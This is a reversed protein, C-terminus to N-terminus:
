QKEEELQLAVREILQENYEVKNEIMDYVVEDITGEMVLFYYTPAVTQGDRYIRGIVQRYDQSSDPMSYLMMLHTKYQLGDISEGCAKIQGVIVRYDTRAIEKDIDKTKGNLVIYPVKMKDLKDVIAKLEPNYNYVIMLNEDTDNLFQEIYDVKNTNDQYMKVERLRDRGAVVGGTLSKLGYRLSPPNDFRIDEYFRNKKLRLYSKPREIVVKEYMPPEETYKPSYSRTYIEVLSDLEPTYKDKYGVIKSIPFPLGVNVQKKICYRTEFDRLTMNLLGLFRLQTYMDIYGGKGSETPTATLIQKFPTKEGIRLVFETTYNFMVRRLGTQSDLRRKREANKIRHSEDVIVFWSEDVIDILNYLGKIMYQMGVVIINNVLNEKGLYMKGLVENTKKASFSKPHKFLKYGTTFKRINRKWQETIHSPCIVLLNSCGSEIFTQISTVTKGSGTKSFNGTAPFLGLEDLLQRQYGYLVIPKGKTIEIHKSLDM